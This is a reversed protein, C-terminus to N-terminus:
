RKQKHLHFVTKGANDCTLFFSQDFRDLLYKYANEGSSTEVYLNKVGVEKKIPAMVGNTM